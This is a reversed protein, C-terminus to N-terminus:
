QRLGHPALPVVHPPGDAKAAKKRKMVEPPGTLTAGDLDLWAWEMHRLEGPRLLLLASLQLAARTVAHGEYAMLDRLLKGGAVPDVIAAHHRSRTPKLADRLDAAPNRQCAGTAIGYRFVQGCSDKIRRATEIAGRAEVRRLCQLVEPAELEGIPRRGIWPFADQELRIRTREAHGASVKAEHVTALWERAVHEFTGPGPLGADALAQAQRVHVREAKDTRREASPDGGAAILKRADDRRQRADKLSVDPYTGLSLMGEKSDIWYRLRWWGAGTPRAEFMLGGGDNLKRAKGSEGATKIAAKLTKDDLVNIAAIEPLEV